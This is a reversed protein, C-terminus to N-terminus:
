STKETIETLPQDDEVKYLKAGLKWGIVYGSTSTKLMLGMVRLALVPLMAIGKLGQPIEFLRWQDFASVYATSLEAKMQRERDKYIDIQRSLSENATKYALVNALESEMRIIKSQQEEITAKLEIVNTDCVAKERLATLLKDNAAALEAELEGNPKTSIPETTPPEFDTPVVTTAGAWFFYRDATSYWKNIGSINEGVVWGIVPIKTGEAFATIKRAGSTPLARVNVGDPHSVQVTMKNEILTYNDDTGDEVVEAAISRWNPHQFHPRDVFSTWDAGLEFGLERAIPYVLAYLDQSYSLQGDKQFAMDVALGYNHPSQGPKAQTIIAGPTTRGQDYMKQQDTMSRFGDTIFFQWGDVMVANGRELLDRVMPQFDKHLDDIRRSSNAM